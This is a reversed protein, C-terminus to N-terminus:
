SFRFLIYYEMPTTSDGKFYPNRKIKITKICHDLLTKYQTRYLRDCDSDCSITDHLSILDLKALNYSEIEKDKNVTFKVVAKGSFYHGSADQIHFYSSNSKIEFLDRDSPDVIATQSYAINTFLIMAISLITRM